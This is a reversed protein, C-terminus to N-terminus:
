EGPIITITVETQSNNYNDQVEASTTSDDGDMEVSIAARYVDAAAAELSAKQANGHVKSYALFGGVSIALILAAIWITELM